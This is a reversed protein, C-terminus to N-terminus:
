SRKEMQVIQEQVQRRLEMPDRIGFFVEKSGGTGSIIICGYGLLRGLLGQHISISEVKSLLTELSHRAVFGTKMLVRMTSVGFESSTVNVLASLFPLVGNFVLIFLGVVNYGNWGERVGQLVNPPLTRLIERPVKSLVHTELLQNGHWTLVGGILLGLLPGLFVIPHLRTRYVVQEGEMLHRDIFSM